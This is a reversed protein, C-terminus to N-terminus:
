RPRTGLGTPTGLPIHYRTAFEKQTLELAQRIIKAQPTRKMRKLDTATLPQADPDTRAAREIADVTMPKPPSPTKASITTKSVNRREGLTAMGIPVFREGSYGARDDLREIAFPDNFVTKALDFRVGHTRLNAKAKAAHWEFKL